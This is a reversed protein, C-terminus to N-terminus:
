PKVKKAREGMRARVPELAKALEHGHKDCLTIDVRPESSSSFRTGPEGCWVCWGPGKAEVHSQAAKWQHYGCMTHNPTAKRKCRIPRPMAKGMNDYRVMTVCQSTEM